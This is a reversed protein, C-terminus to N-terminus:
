INTTVKDLIKKRNTYWLYNKELRIRLDSQACKNIDYVCRKVLCTHMISLANQINTPASDNKHMIWLIYFVTESGLTHQRSMMMIIKAACMEWVNFAFGRVNRQFYHLPCFIYPYLDHWMNNPFWFHTERNM